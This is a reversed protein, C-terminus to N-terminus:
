HSESYLGGSTSRISWPAIGVVIGTKDRLIPKVTEGRPIRGDWMRLEPWEREAVVGTPNLASDSWTLATAATGTLASHRSRLTRSRAPFLSPPQQGFQRPRRVM